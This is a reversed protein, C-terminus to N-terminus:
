REAAAARLKYTLGVYFVQGPVRFDSQERYQATDILGRYRVTDLVDNVNIVLKLRPTFNHGYSLNLSGYGSQTGGALLSRGRLQGLVQLSDDPDPTWIVGLKTLHTFTADTIDIGAVPATQRVHSLDSSLSISWETSARLAVSAEFGTSAGKGANEYSSVLATDGPTPAYSYSM